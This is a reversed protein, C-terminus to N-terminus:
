KVGGLPKLFAEAKRIDDKHDVDVIKPMPWAELKLGEEVLQRQFNRMRSM